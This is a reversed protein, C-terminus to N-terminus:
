VFWQVGNATGYADGRRRRRKRQQMAGSRVVRTSKFHPKLHVTQAILRLPAARPMSKKVNPRAAFAPVSAAAPRCVWVNAATFAASEGGFSAPNSAGM